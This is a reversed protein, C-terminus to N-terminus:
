RLWERHCQAFMQQCPQSIYIGAMLGQTVYLVYINPAFSSILFVAFYLIGGSICVVQAGFKNLLSSTVM